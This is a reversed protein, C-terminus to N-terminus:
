MTLTVEWRSPCTPPSVTPTTAGWSVIQQCVCRSQVTLDTLHLPLLLHFIWFKQLKSKSIYFDDIHLWYSKFEFGCGMSLFNGIKVAEIVVYFSMWNVKRIAERQLWGKSHCSRSCCTQRKRQYNFVHKQKLQGDVILGTVIWSLEPSGVCGAPTLTHLASRPPTSSRRPAASRSRRQSPWPRALLQSLETQSLYSISLYGSPSHQLGRYQEEWLLDGWLKPWFLWPFLGASETLKLFYFSIFFWDWWM